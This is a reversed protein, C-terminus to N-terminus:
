SLNTSLPHGEKKFFGQGKPCRQKHAQGIGALRNGPEAIIADGAMDFADDYIERNAILSGGHFDVQVKETKTTNFDIWLTRIGEQQMDNLFLLRFCNNPYNVREALQFQQMSVNQYKGSNLQVNGQEFIDEIKHNRVTNFVEEVTSKVGFDATHGAWGIISHGDLTHTSSSNFRSKGYFYNWIGEEYGMEKLATENFGPQACIKIEIPFDIDQLDIEKVSTNLLTPKIFSELIFGLQVIAALVCAINILRWSMISMDPRQM